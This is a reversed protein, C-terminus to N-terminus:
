LMFPFCVPVTLDEEQKFALCAQGTAHDDSGEASISSGDVKSIKKPHTM